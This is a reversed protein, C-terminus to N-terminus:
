LPCASSALDEATCLALFACIRGRMMLIITPMVSCRWKRRGCCTMAASVLHAAAVDTCTHKSYHESTRCRGPRAAGFDQVTFPTEDDSEAMCSTINVASPDWDPSGWDPQRQGNDHRQAKRTSHATSGDTSPSGAFM